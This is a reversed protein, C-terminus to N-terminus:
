SRRPVTAVGHGGVIRHQVVVVPDEELRGRRVGLPRGDSVREPRDADVVRVPRVDVFQGRTDGDVRQPGDALPVADVRFRQQRGALPVVLPGLDGGEPVAPPAVVVVHRGDEVM